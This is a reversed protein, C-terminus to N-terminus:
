LVCVVIPLVPLFFRLLKFHGISSHTISEPPTKKAQYIYAAIEISGKGKWGALIGWTKGMELCTWHSLVEDVEREREWFNTLMAHVAVNTDDDESAATGLELRRELERERERFTKWSWSCSGAEDDETRDSRRKKKKQIKNQRFSRSIM